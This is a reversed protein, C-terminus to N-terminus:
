ATETTKGPWNALVIALVGLGVTGMWWGNLPEGFAVVSATAAGLIQMAGSVPFMIAASRGACAALIGIGGISGVAALCGLGLTWAPSAGFARAAVLDCALGAGFFAYLLMLYIDGWQQMYSGNEGRSRKGLYKMGVFAAGNAVLVASLLLLYGWSMAGGGGGQQGMASVVVCGVAAAVSCIQAVGLREGLFMASFSLVTIFGLSAACWAPSFPGIGIAWMLLRLALYQSVGAGMGMVWVRKPVGAFGKRVSKVLFFVTGFGCCIVMIHSPTIGRPKGLSYAIGILALCLGAAIALVLTGSVGKAASRTELTQTVVERVRGDCDGATEDHSQLNIKRMM